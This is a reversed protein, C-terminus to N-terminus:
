NAISLMFFLPSSFILPLPSVQTPSAVNINNVLQGNASIGLFQGNSQARIAYYGNVQYFLYTERNPESLYKTINPQSTYKIGDAQPKAILSWELLVLMLLAM